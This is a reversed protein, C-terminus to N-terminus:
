PENNDKNYFVPIPAGTANDPSAGTARSETMGVIRNKGAPIWQVQDIAQTRGRPLHFSAFWQETARFITPKKTRWDYPGQPRLGRSSPTGTEELAEIVATNGDGLRKGKIERAEETLVLDNM